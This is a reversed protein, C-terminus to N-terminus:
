LSSALSQSTDPIGGQPRLDLDNGSQPLTWVSSPFEMEM